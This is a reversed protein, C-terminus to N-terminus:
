SRTFLLDKGALRLRPAFRAIGSRTGTDDSDERAQPLVKDDTRDKASVQDFAIHPIPPGYSPARLSLRVGSRKVFKCRALSAGIPIDETSLANLAQHHEELFRWSGSDETPWPPSDDAFPATIALQQISPAHFSGLFTDAYALDTHLHLILAHLSSLTISSHQLDEVRPIDDTVTVELRKLAVAGELQTGLVIAQSPRVRICLTELRRGFEFSIDTGLSTIDLHRLVDLRRLFIIRLSKTWQELKITHLNPSNEILYIALAESDAGEFIGVSLRRMRNALETSKLWEVTHDESVIPRRRLQRAHDIALVHVDVGSTGARQLFLETLCRRGASPSSSFTLRSWFHPCSRLIHSWRRCVAQLILPSISWYESSATDCYFDFIELLIENPLMAFYEHLLIADCQQALKTLTTYRPNESMKGHLLHKPRAHLLAEKFTRSLKRAVEIEGTLGDNQKPQM